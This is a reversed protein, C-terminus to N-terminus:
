PPGDGDAPPESRSSCRHRRDPLMTLHAPDIDGAGAHIGDAPGDYRPGLGDTVVVREFGSTVSGTPGILEQVNASGTHVAAPAGASGLLAEPSWDHAPPLTASAAQPTAPGDVRPLAANPQLVPLRQPFQVDSAHLLDAASAFHCPRGLLSRAA